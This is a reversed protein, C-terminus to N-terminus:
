HGHSHGAHGHDAPAAGVYTAWALLLGIVPLRFRIRSLVPRGSGENLERSMVEEEVCSDRVM